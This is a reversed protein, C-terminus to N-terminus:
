MIVIRLCVFLYFLVKTEKAKKLRMQKQWAIEVTVSAKCGRVNHGVQKCNGCVVLGGARSLKYPNQLEDPGKM